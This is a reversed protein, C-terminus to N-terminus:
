RQDTLDRSLQRSLALKRQASTLSADEREAEDHHKKIADVVRSLAIAEGEKILRLKEVSIVENKTELLIQQAVEYALDASAASIEGSVARVTLEDRIRGLQAEQKKTVELFTKFLVDLQTIEARAEELCDEVNSGLDYLYRLFERSSM